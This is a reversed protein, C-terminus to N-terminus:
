AGGTGFYRYGNQIAKEVALKLSDRIIGRKDSPILRHGTFCCTHKKLDSM